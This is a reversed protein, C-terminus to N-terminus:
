HLNQQLIAHLILQNFRLHTHLHIVSLFHQVNENGDNWTDHINKHEMFVEVVEFLDELSKFEISM